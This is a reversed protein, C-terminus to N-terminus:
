TRELVVGYLTGSFVDAVRWPTETCLEALEDVSCWLLDFWETAVNRYRARLTIQGPLRGRRRNRDHYALHVPDETAYPDLGTGIIVADRTTIGALANLLHKAEDNHGLLGLNNGLALVSDFPEPKTAVLDEVTGEFCDEVGRRRCVEIAGESVDLAVVPQGRAQLELAARGAGAGFDLVRGGARELTWRDRASWSDHTAFYTAHGQDLEILGDDRELVLALGDGDVAALLAQGWADGLIPGSIENM